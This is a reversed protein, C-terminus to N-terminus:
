GPSGGKRPPSAYEVKLFDDMQDGEPDINYRSGKVVEIPPLLRSLLQTVRNSQWHVSGAAAGPSVIRGLIRNLLGTCAPNKDPHSNIGTFLVPWSLSALAAGAPM